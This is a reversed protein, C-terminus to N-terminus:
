ITQQVLTQLVITDRVITQLVLTKQPTQHLNHRPPPQPTQEAITKAAITSAAYYKICYHESYYKKGSLTKQAARTLEPSTQTPRPM